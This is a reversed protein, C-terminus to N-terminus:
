KPPNPDRKKLAAVVCTEVVLKRVNFQSKTFTELLEARQMPGYARVPQQVFHHFLQETFAAHVENSNALFTALEKVSGFNVPDGTRTLYGGLSDVPKSNENERYRGVADFHELTFGLPNIISHCTQCNTPKTQMAVRERTTLTPHLDAPFPVFAEQPPRLVLGLVRRALFVGRHIPSTETTYSFAAMMFPHTLVGARNEADLDWKQFPADFALDEGYFSALRGNLYTENALLLQRFDSTPSWVIQQVFLDLSTRLDTVVEPTFGPYRETNKSIETVQDIGLWKHTFERLKAKARLDNLMREAHRTIQERTKLKGNAAATLLEQDPLSDWLEYSLRSAVEHPDPGDGLERFLFRPSKLVLLVVRKVALAPDKATEFQRDVFFRIEDPKLPRRFARETFKRAFEKLKPLQDTTGALEPLKTAIYAASEFAADTTSQEWAKSITTGREWGLSRDDPPFATTVIFSEAANTPSLNRAPIVETAQHPRKWELSIMAPAPLRNKADKDAVGQLAKSFELRLPYARGALLLISARFETDLGSKVYADVLPKTNDNVWLRVSQDSRVVFDYVGTEPALVSGSWRIAFEHPEIKGKEPSATGFDFRVEDDTRDLIRKDNRFNRTNFYEGRLGRAEDWKTQTRFSGVLDTVTNRYQRVTLRALDIRPPTNRERAAQSYFSEHIYAAVTDADDGICTGPKDEPMTKAIYKSLQAVSRDGVLPEAYEKTGAGDVGHCRVCQKQYIQEGSLKDAGGVYPCPLAISVIVILTAFLPMWRPRTVILPAIMPPVM